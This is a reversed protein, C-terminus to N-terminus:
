QLLIINAGEKAAKRVLGDARELTMEQNWTCAMQIAAVKVKRM